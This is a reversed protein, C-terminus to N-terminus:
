RGRLNSAFFLVNGMRRDFSKALMNWDVKKLCAIKHKHKRIWILPINRVGLGEGNFKCSFTYIAIPFSKGEFSEKSARVVIRLKKDSKSSRGYGSSGVTEWSM